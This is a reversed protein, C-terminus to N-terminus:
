APKKAKFLFTFSRCLDIAPFDSRAPRRAQEQQGSKADHRHPLRAANQIQENHLRQQEGRGGRQQTQTMM